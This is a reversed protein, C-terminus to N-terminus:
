KTLEFELTKSVIRSNMLYPRHDNTNLAVTLEYKGPSLAGIKYAEEYVRGLKLGNLYVHAHGENPSHEAGDGARVFTFNSTALQLTAGGQDPQNKWSLALEPAPDETVGNSQGHNMPAVGSNQVRTSVTGANEFTLNLPIFAGQAFTDPKTMLMIHAGDMALIGAGNKPIVIASGNGGPNMISVNQAAPSSVGILRDASGSNEIRLGVMFM